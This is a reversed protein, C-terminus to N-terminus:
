NTEDQGEEGVSEGQEAVVLVWRFDKNAVSEAVVSAHGESDHPNQAVEAFCKENEEDGLDDVEEVGKGLQDTDDM